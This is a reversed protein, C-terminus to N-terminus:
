DNEFEEKFVQWKEQNMVWDSYLAVGSYNNSLNKNSALSAHVGRLASSLNEVKPDHYGVNADEYAPVGFLVETGKSWDLIQSTWNSMIQTYVKPMAISTDYMMPVLQDSRKAVERFFAEDWHVEPFPHFKTPPPYAAISIIAGRPLAKRMEDLLTLFHTNGSPLPEINIHIGSLRPHDHFLEAISETFSSRWDESDIFCHSDLVGGVWPLVDFESFVNLFLETQDSDVLAISGDNQCPCLHPYVYKMGHGNLLAAHNELKQSDRFLLKDRGHKKFWDDHGLWGHQLWIGNSRLDHRGDTIRKGPSWLCYFFAFSALIGLLLILTRWPPKKLQNWLRKGYQKEAVSKVM